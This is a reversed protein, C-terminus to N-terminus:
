DDGPAVSREVAERLAPTEARDALQDRVANRVAKADDLHEFEVFGLSQNTGGTLFSITGYGLLAQIRSQRFEHSRLQDLPIERSQARYFLEYEQRVVAEDIAYTTRTLVFIHILSRVVALATLLAVITSAVDSLDPDGLLEPNTKLTAFILAGVALTVALRVLEPRITPHTEFTEATAAENSADTDTSSADTM